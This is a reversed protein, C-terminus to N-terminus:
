KKPPATFVLRVGPKWGESKLEISRIPSKKGQIVLISKGVPALNYGKDELALRLLLQATAPDPEDGLMIGTTFVSGEMTTIRIDITTGPAANACTSCDIHWEAPMLLVTAALPLTFMGM